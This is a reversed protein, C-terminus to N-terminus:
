VILAKRSYERQLRNVIDRGPGSMAVIGGMEQVTSQARPSEIRLIAALQITAEKIPTPVAPWGWTGTIRVAKIHDGFTTTPSALRTYPRNSIAANYPLLYAAAPAVITGWSADGELDLALETIAVLDDILVSAGSNMPTDFYRVQAAASQNFVRGLEEELVRSIATLGILITADATTITKDIRDRYEAATAYSDAWAM